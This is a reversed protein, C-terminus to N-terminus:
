TRQFGDPVGFRWLQANVVQNVVFGALISITVWDPRWGYLPAMVAVAGVAGMTLLALRVCPKTQGSALASRCFASWMLALALIEHAFLQVTEIM